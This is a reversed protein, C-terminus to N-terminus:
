AGGGMGTHRRLSKYMVKEIVSALQSESGVFGNVSININTNGGVGGKTAIINDDPHTKIVKGTKTIIMDNGKDDYGRGSGGSEKAEKAAAKASAIASNLDGILKIMRENARNLAFIYNDSTKAIDVLVEPIKLFGGPMLVSGIAWGIKLIGLYTEIIRGIALLVMEALIGTAGESNTISEVFKGAEPAFDNFQDGLKMLEETSKVIGTAMLGIPTFSALGVVLEGLAGFGGALGDLINERPKARDEGKLGMLDNYLETAWSSLSKFAYHLKLIPGEAKDASDKALDVADVISDYEETMTTAASTIDNVREINNLQEKNLIWGWLGELAQKREEIKLKLDANYLDVQEDVKKFVELLKDKFGGLNSAVSVLADRMNTSNSNLVNAGETMSWILMDMAADMELISTLRWYEIAGVFGAGVGAIWDLVDDGFGMLHTLVLLLNTVVVTIIQGLDATLNVLAKNIETILVGFLLTMMNNIIGMGILTMTVGASIPSSTDMEKGKQLGAAMLPKFVMMLIKLIPMFLRLFYLLIGGIVGDIPLLILKLLKKIAEFLKQSIVMNRWMKDLFMVIIQLTVQILILAAAIVVAAAALGGAAEAAGSSGAGSAVDTPIPPMNQTQKGFTEAAQTPDLKQKPFIENVRDLGTKSLFKRFLRASIGMQKIMPRAFILIFDQSLKRNKEAVTLMKNNIKNIDKLIKDSVKTPPTAGTPIKLKSLGIIKKVNLTVDVPINAM